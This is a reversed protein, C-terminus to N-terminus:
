LVDLLKESSINVQCKARQFGTLATDTLGPKGFVNASGQLILLVQLLKATFPMKWTFM